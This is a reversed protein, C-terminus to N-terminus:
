VRMTLRGLHRRQTTKHQDGKLSRTEREIEKGGGLYVSNVGETEQTNLAIRTLASRVTRYDYGLPSERIWQILSHALHVSQM